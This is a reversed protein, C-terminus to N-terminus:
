HKLNAELLCFIAASLSLVLCTYAALLQSQARSIGASTWIDDSPLNRFLAEPSSEDPHAAIFGRADAKLYADSANIHRESFATERPFTFKDLLRPYIFAAIIAIVFFFSGAILWKLRRSAMSSRRRGAVSVIMLAVLMFFSLIGVAYSSIPGAPPAIKKLFGGFGATMFVIVEVFSTLLDKYAKM